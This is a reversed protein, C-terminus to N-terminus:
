TQKKDKSDDPEFASRGLLCCECAGPDMAYCATIQEMEADTLTVRIQISIKGVVESNNGILTAAIRVYASIIAPPKARAIVDV